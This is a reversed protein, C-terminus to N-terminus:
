ARAGTEGAGPRSANIRRSLWIVAPLAVLIILLSPWAAQALREDRAYNYALVAPTDFNFPRLILTAPLEKLIDIFVVLMASLLSGSVIPVQVSLAAGGESRGLSRAAMVMSPTIRMLGADVPELAAAMLRAAYAYILVIIAFGTASLAGPLNQWVFAAPVLLGIAMASGPTAYGLSAIRATLPLKRAGLALATALVVTLLAGSLGLVLANSASTVIRGIEPSVRLGVIVLWLVPLGLGAILLSACYGSALAGRVGRLPTVPLPRWRADAAAYSRARRGWRELWMLVAALALLPLALRAASPTSGMVSWARVVGTTLTDFSLFQVAGYDALTEMVALAVGAALAPRALPLAARAFAQVPTCGLSRAAELASVSQNLFAARMAIYVYPYFAMTLVFAAGWLSRMRIAIDFGAVDRLWFRFPGAVDFLDAYAYAIAFGPAALPLVLAWAFVRKGPFDHMVVLWAAATGLVAVGAGVLAALLVSGLAYRRVDPWPLDVAGPQMATVVLGALPLLALAAAIIALVGM